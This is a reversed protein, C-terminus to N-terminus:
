AGDAARAFAAPDALEPPLDEVRSGARREAIAAAREDAAGDAAGDLSDILAALDSEVAQKEMLDVFLKALAVTVPSGSLVTGDGLTLELKAAM